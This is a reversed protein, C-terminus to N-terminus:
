EKQSKTFKMYKKKYMIQVSGTLGDLTNSDKLQIYRKTYM